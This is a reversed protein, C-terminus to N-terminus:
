ALMSSARADPVGRLTIRFECANGCSVHGKTKMHSGVAAARACFPVRPLEPAAELEVFNNGLTRLGTYIRRSARPSLPSGACSTVLRVNRGMKM